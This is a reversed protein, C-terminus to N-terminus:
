FRENGYKAALHLPTSGDNSKANVDAGSGILYKVLNETGDCVLLIKSFVHRGM